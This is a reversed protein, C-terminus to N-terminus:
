ERRELPSDLTSPRPQPQAGGRRQMTRGDCVEFLSNRWEVADLHSTDPVTLGQFHRSGEYVIGFSRGGKERYLGVMQPPGGSFEDAGSRLADCFSSFVSRSTRDLATMWKRNWDGVVQRGSGIALVLASQEPLPLERDAWGANKTWQTEWLCFRAQMGHGDRSAHLITFENQQASPYTTFANELVARFVDHRSEVSDGENWLLGAEAASCTQGLVLSPFLVDGCYGFIDPIQSVAFVKRGTDWSSKPKSWSIRSDSAIYFSAPGRSDVGVWAVVSSM